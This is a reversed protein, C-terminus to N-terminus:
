SVWALGRRGTRRRDLLVAQGPGPPLGAAQPLADLPLHRDVPRRRGQQRQAAQARQPDRRARAGRHGVPGAQALQGAAGAPARGPPDGPGISTSLLGRITADMQRLNGPWPARMLCRLTASAFHLQREGRHKELLAIATPAIDEHRDRLPALTVRGVGVTDVLRRLGPADPGDTTMTAVIRPPNPLEELRDLLASSAAAAEPSLAELHRLLLADPELELERRLLTVFMTPGEAWGAAADIVAIKEARVSASALVAKALAFKGVGSEGEILM